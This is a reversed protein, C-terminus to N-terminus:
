QDRGPQERTHQDPDPASQSAPLVSLPTGNVNSNCL